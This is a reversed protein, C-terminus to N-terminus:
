RSELGRIKAIDTFVELGLFRASFEFKGSSRSASASTTAGVGVLTLSGLFMTRSDSLPETDTTAHLAFFRDFIVFISFEELDEPIRPM